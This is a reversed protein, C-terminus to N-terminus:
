TQKAEEGASSGNPSETAQRVPVQNDGVPVFANGFSQADNRTHPGPTTAIMASPLGGYHQEINEQEYYHPQGEQPYGVYPHYAAHMGEPHHYYAGMGYPPYMLPQQIPMPLTSPIGQNVSPAEGNPSFSQPLYAETNVPYGQQYVPRTYGKNGRRVKGNYNSAEKPEAAKIECVKGRMQVRGTGNQGGAGEVSM